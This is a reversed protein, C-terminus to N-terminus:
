LPARAHLGTGLSPPTAARIDEAFEPYRSTWDLIQETTPRKCAEQFALLVEDRTEQHGKNTTM